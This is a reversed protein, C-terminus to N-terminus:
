KIGGGAAKAAKHKPSNDNICIQSRCYGYTADGYRNLKPLQLSAVASDEKQDCLSLGTLESSRPYLHRFKSGPSPILAQAVIYRMVCDQYGSHQGGKNAVWVIRAESKGLWRKLQDRSGSAADNTFPIVLNTLPIIQRQSEVPKGSDDLPTEILNDGELKWKRWQQDTDGHHRVNCCHLIEHSITRYPQYRSIVRGDGTRFEDMHYIHPLLAVKKPEGPGGMGISYGLADSIITDICIGYQKGRSPTSSSVNANVWVQQGNSIANPLKPLRRPYFDVIQVPGIEDEQLGDHVVMFSYTLNRFHMVGPESYSGARNLIFLDKKGPHGSVRQGGVYFGRYEEYLTLGDGKHGGWCNFDPPWDRGPEKTAQGPDDESDDDDPLDHIKPVEDKWLDRWADAIISGEKRKPLRIYPSSGDTKLYGVVQLGDPMVATVLLIGYAGWDYSGITAEAESYAAPPTEAKIGRGNAAIKGKDNLIDLKGNKGQDSDFQLDPEEDAASGPTADKKPAPYNMCVGPERSVDVLEFTFKVAKEKAPSGDNNRLSAKVLLPDSGAVTANYTATPMWTKYKPIDVVVKLPSPNSTLSWTITESITNEDVALPSKVPRTLSGSLNSVGPQYPIRFSYFFPPPPPWDRQTTILDGVRITRTKSGRLLSGQTNVSMSYEDKQPFKGRVYTMRGPGSNTGWRGAETAPDTKGSYSRETTDVSTIPSKTSFMEETKRFKGTFSVRGDPEIIFTCVNKINTTFTTENVKKKTSGATVIHVLGSWFSKAPPPNKGKKQATLGTALFTLLVAVSAALGIRSIAKM